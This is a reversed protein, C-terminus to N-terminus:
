DFSLASCLEAAAVVVFLLFAGRVEHLFILFLAFCTLSISKKTAYVNTHAHTHTYTHRHKGTDTHAYRM